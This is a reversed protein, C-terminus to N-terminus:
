DPEAILAVIQGNQTALLIDQWGDGNLDAILPSGMVPGGVNVAWARDGFATYVQVSGDPLAVVTEKTGEGDLDAVVPYARTRQPESM